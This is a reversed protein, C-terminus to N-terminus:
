SEFAFPKAPEVPQLQPCLAMGERADSALHLLCLNVVSSVSIVSSLLLTLLPSILLEYCEEEM